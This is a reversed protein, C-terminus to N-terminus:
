EDIDGRIPYATGGAYIAALIRIEEAKVRYLDAHLEFVDALKGYDVTQFIRPNTSNDICFVDRWCQKESEGGDTRGTPPKKIPLKRRNM